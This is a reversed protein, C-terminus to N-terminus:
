KLNFSEVIEDLLDKLHNADGVYGYHIKEFEVNMNNGVYKKILELKEEISKKSLMFANQAREQNTM